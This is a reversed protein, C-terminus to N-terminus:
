IKLLSRCCDLVIGPDNAITLGAVSFLREVPASTAPIALVRRLHPHVRLHNLRCQAAKNQILNRMRNKGINPCQPNSATMMRRFSPRTCTSIPQYTDCVWEVLADEFDPCPQTFKTINQQVDVKRKKEAKTSVEVKHIEQHHVRLHSEMHSTNGRKVEVSSKCHNCVAIKLAGSSSGSQCKFHAWVWSTVNKPVFLTENSFPTAETAAPTATLATLATVDDAVEDCLDIM